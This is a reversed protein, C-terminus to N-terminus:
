KTKKAKAYSAQIDINAVGDLEFGWLICNIYEVESSIKRHEGFAETLVNTAVMPNWARWDIAIKGPVLM